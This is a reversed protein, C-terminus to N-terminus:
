SGYEQGEAESRERRAAGTLFWVGSGGSRVAGGESSGDPGYEQDGAESQETRAAGTLVM